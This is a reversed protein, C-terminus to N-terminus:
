MYFSYRPEIQRGESCYRLVSSCQRSATLTVPEAGDFQTNNWNLKTLALVERALYQPTQEAVQTRLRLPNPIYKSPYTEFFPVSGRSYLVSEQSELVLLTGRLPPYQGGRYLRTKSDSVWLFDHTAIGRDTISNKLCGNMVTLM